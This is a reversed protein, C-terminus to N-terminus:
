AITQDPEPSKRKSIRATSAPHRSLSEFGLISIILLVFAMGSVTWPGRHELLVYGLLPAFADRLGLVATNIGMYESVKDRPTVNSVWLSWLIVGGSRGIGLLISAWYIMHINHTALFFPIGILFCATVCQRMSATLCDEGFRGSSYVRWPSFLLLYRSFQEM